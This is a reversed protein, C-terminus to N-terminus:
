RDRRCGLATLRSTIPSEAAAEAEDIKLTGNMGTAMLPGLEALPSIPVVRAVPVPIDACGMRAALHGGASRGTVVVPGKDSAAVEVGASSPVRLATTM